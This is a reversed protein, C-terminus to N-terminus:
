ESCVIDFEYASQKHTQNTNAKSLKRMYIFYDPVLFLLAGIWAAPNAFCLGIFGFELALFVAVGARCLVEAFGSATPMFARGLSQLVSKYVVLPSLLVMCVTNIIMYLRGDSIIIPLADSGVVLHMLNRGFLIMIVSSIAVWILSMIISSNVGQRVRNIDRAGYNQAAYVSIAAGFSQVPQNAIQELKNAATITAVATTSLQNTAWQLTISGISLIMNLFGMPLGVHLLNRVIPVNFEFDDKTLHLLPVKHAIYVVCLVGSVLQAIVTAVGAGAVDMNFVLILVYDLVVNIISAVILFILPTRSNGLARIQNSLLNYLTTAPIGAFIVTIYIYARDFIDDPTNMLKLLGKVFLLCLTTMIVAMIAALVLSMAFARRVGGKDGAGFCRATIVSFGTCVGHVFGMAFWVLCGTSGVAALADVGLTRGVIVTDAINYLQQFLNGILYPLTFLLILKAPNGKTLDNTM